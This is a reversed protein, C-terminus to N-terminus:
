GLKKFQLGYVFFIGRRNQNQLDQFNASSVMRMLNNGSLTKKVKKEHHHHHPLCLIEAFVRATELDHFYDPILENAM